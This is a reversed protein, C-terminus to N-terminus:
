NKKMRYGKWPMWWTLVNRSQTAEECRKKEELKELTKEIQDKRYDIYDELKAAMQSQKRKKGGTVDQDESNRSAPASQVETSEVGGLGFNLPNRDNSAMGNYGFSPTTSHNSQESISTQTTSETPLESNHPTPETRQPPPQILTFNLDGTAM